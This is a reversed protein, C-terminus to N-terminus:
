EKEVFRRDGREKQRDGVGDGPLPSDDPEENGLTVPRQISGTFREHTEEVKVPARNHYGAECSALIILVGVIITACRFKM